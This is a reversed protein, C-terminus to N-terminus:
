SCTGDKRMLVQYSELTFRMPLTLSMGLPFVIKSEATLSGRSTCIADLSMEIKNNVVIINQSEEQPFSGSITMESRNGFHKRLVQLYTSKVEFYGMGTNVNAMFNIPHHGEKKLLMGIDKVISDNNLAKIVQKLRSLVEDQTKSQLVFSMDKTALYRKFFPHEKIEYLIQDFHSRTRYESDQIRQWDRESGINAPSRYISFSRNYYENYIPLTLILMLLIGGLSLILKAPVIRRISHNKNRVLKGANLNDRIVEKEKAALFKASFELSISQCLRKNIDCLFVNWKLQLNYPIANENKIAIGLSLCQGDLWNTLAKRNEKLKGEDQLVRNLLQEIEEKNKDRNKELEVLQNRDNELHEVLRSQKMVKNQFKKNLEEIYLTLAYYHRLCSLSELQATVEELSEKTAYVAKLTQLSLHTRLNTELSLGSKTAVTFKLENTERLCKAYLEQLQQLLEDFSFNELRKSSLDHCDKLYALLENRIVGGIYDRQDLYLGIAELADVEEVILPYYDEIKVCGM